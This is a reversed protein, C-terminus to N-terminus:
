MKFKVADHRSGAIAEVVYIGEPLGFESAVGRSEGVKAGQMNYVRVLADAAVTELEVRMTGSDKKAVKVLRSSDADSLEAVGGGSLKSGKYRYNFRGNPAVDGDTIFSLIDPNDDSTNDAWKFDVDTNGTIGLDKKPVALHMRNGDVRYAVEDITKWYYKGAFCRMLSYKKTKADKYIMYDYGNWGTTYDADTNLLLKMWHKSFTFNTINATTEVYFYMNDADSAVKAVVIDNTKRSTVGESQVGPLSSNLIDGKDDRYEPEVADWQSMDGDISIAVSQVPEPIKHVGRYRRINSCLQLYYNDRITPNWSPEVDRNFEENYADIFYTEGMAPTAGPRTYNIEGQNKVVFRMAIWENFQTIMVVPPHQKHAEDWQEQFYLGQPTEACLGYKDVAPQRGKHYSKGVKTHAHQAVGVTIQEMKKSGNDYTWGQSQPYYELWSWEDPKAGNMWAWSNRFTFREMLGAVETGEIESKDGLLLPKGDYEYWYKDNAPNQYFTKYINEVTSRASSHVMFCLKMTKLGLSERRDMEAMVKRVVDEYIFANTTDFFLFDIGADALMQMHKAIVYEDGGTYYGLVPKGWWHYMGEGGWNPNDPNEKLLKSVDKGSSPHKNHWMYYFMGIQCNEDIKTPVLPVDSSAVTRNLEDVAVWTDSYTDWEQANALFASAALAASIYIRKM